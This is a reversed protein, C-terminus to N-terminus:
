ARRMMWWLQIKLTAASGAILALTTMMSGLALTSVGSIGQGITCGLGVVGGFGMLNGGIVHRLVDGTDHFTEFRFTKSFLAYLFSGLVVGMTVAIGFTVIRSSDTWLMLLEMFYAYPAMFSLSEPRNGTTGLYAEQLTDPDEAVYGLYATVFWGAVVCLGIGIGAFLTMGLEDRNRLLWIAACAALILAIINFITTPSTGLAGALMSPVDQRTSLDVSLPNLLDLRPVAYLGKLTMYAAIAVVMFVFAAKMNGGGIRILTKAGCGSALTMGVGFLFGGVIYPGYMFRKGTYLTSETDMMGGGQLAAVGVIAVVIALFWQRMRGWSGMNVLDSIAGMTCFNSRNGIVGFCIGIALGLWAVTAVSIM